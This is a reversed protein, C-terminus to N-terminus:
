GGAQERSNFTCILLNRQSSGMSLGFGSPRAEQLYLGPPDPVQQVLTGDTQYIAGLRDGRTILANGHAGVLGLAELDAFHFVLAFSSRPSDGTLMEQLVQWSVPEIQAPVRVAAKEKRASTGTNTGTKPLKVPEHYDPDYGSPLGAQPAATAAADLRYMDVLFPFILRGRM